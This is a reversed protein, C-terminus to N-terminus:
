FLLNACFLSCCDCSCACFACFHLSSFVYRCCHCYCDCDQRMTMTMMTVVIVFLVAGLLLQQKEGDGEDNENVVVGSGCEFFFCYYESLWKEEGLLGLCLCLCYCYHVLQAVVFELSRRRHRWWGSNQWRDVILTM